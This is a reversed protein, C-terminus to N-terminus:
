EGGGGDIEDENGLAIEALDAAFAATRRLAASVRERRERDLPLCLVDAAATVYADLAVSPDSSM